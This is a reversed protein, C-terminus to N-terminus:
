KRREKDSKNKDHNYKSMMEEIREKPFDTEELFEKWYEMYNDELNQLLEVMFVYNDVYEDARYGIENYIKMAIDIANEKTIEPIYVNFPQYHGVFINSLMISEDLKDNEYMLEEVMNSMRLCFNEFLVDFAEEKNYDDPMYYFIDYFKVIFRADRRNDEFGIHKLLEDYTKMVYEIDEDDYDGTMTAITRAELECM